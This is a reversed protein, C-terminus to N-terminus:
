KGGGKVSIKDVEKREWTQRNEWMTGEIERGRKLVKGL